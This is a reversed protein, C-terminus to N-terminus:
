SKQIAEAAGACHLAEAKARGFTSAGREVQTGYGQPLGEIFEDACARRCAERCEEMTADRKGWRLNELISGSFLVNEAAGSFGREAARAPRVGATAAEWWCAGKPCMTCAASLASSAQKPAAQRVSSVLTEGPEVRLNIHQLAPEGGGQGYGFSM